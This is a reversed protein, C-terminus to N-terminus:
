IQLVQKVKRERDVIIRLHCGPRLPFLGARLSDLYLEYAPMYGDVFRAVQDPTMGASPDGRAARLSDEQQQRWLYVYDLDDADLQIFVDLLQTVGDYSRLQNNVFLLDDLAHADLSRSPHQRRAAVADDSLARFGLCWGDILVLRVPPQGPRNVPEWQSEPLRDGLGSFAAKDYRPLRTPQNQLLASLFSLLLPLDHTGPSPTSSLTLLRHLLSRLPSPEM